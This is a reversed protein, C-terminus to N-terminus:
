RMEPAGEEAGRARPVPPVLDLLQDGNPLAFAVDGAVGELSM